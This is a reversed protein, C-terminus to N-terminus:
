AYWGLFHATRPPSSRHPVGGTDPPSVFHCVKPGIISRAPPPWRDMLHFRNSATAEDETRAANQEAEREAAAAGIQGTVEDEARRVRVSGHPRPRHEVRSRWGLVVCRSLGPVRRWRRGEVVGVPRGWWGVVHIYRGREGVCRATTRRRAGPAALLVSATQGVHREALARASRVALLARIATLEAVLAAAPVDGAVAPRRVARSTAGAIAGAGVAFVVHRAAGSAHLAFAAIWDGAPPRADRVGPPDTPAALVRRHWAVAPSARRPAANTTNARLPRLVNRASRPPRRALVAGLASERAQAILTPAAELHAVTPSAPESRSASPRHRPRNPNGIASASIRHRSGIGVASASLRNPNGIASASDSVSPRLRPM